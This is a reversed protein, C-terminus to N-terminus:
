SITSSKWAWRRSRRPMSPSRAARSSSAPSRSRAAEVHGAHDACRAAPLAPDRGGAGRARGGGAPREAAGQGAPQAAPPEQRRGGAQGVEAGGQHGAPRVIDAEDISRWFEDDTDIIQAAFSVEILDPGSLKCDEVKLAHHARDEVSSCDFGLRVEKLNMSQLVMRMGIAEVSRLSPALVFDEIRMRSRSLDASERRTETSVSGLSLGYRTMLDGGFGSMRGEAVPVRGIPM